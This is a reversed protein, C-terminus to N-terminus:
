GQSITKKILVINLTGRRRSMRSYSTLSYLFPKLYRTLGDSIMSIQTKCEKIKDKVTDIKHISADDMVLM